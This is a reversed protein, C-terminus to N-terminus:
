KPSLSSKGHIIYSNNLYDDNPSFIKNLEQSSSTASSFYSQNYNEDQRYILLKWKTPNKFNEM